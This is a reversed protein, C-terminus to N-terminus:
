LRLFDVIENNCAEVATTGNKLVEKWWDVTANIAGVQTWFPQWGLETTAFTSDLGLYKSELFSSNIESIRSTQQGWRESAISIVKSVTLSEEVPGFNCTSFNDGKLASNAALLYGFLPDLVHQWPRTSNPNRVFVEKEENFSRILEPLLRNESLDGGGIVNGSRVTIIRMASNKNKNIGRWADAVSETAVKSASYPDSGRLSDSETFNKKNGLNEYVKDSTVVVVAKIWPFKSAVELVNATGIVNTQFTLLPDKYSELVLPQAALHFIIQPKKEQVFSEFREFDCIDGFAEAIKSKRDAMMFLSDKKPELSYGSIEFDLKELLLTLWTGKFGTHGTILIRTDVGALELSVRSEM